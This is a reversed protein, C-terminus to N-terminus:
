FHETVASNLERQHWKLMKWTHTIQRPHHCSDTQFLVSIKELCISMQVIPITCYLSFSFTNEGAERSQMVLLYFLLIRVTKKRDMWRWKKLDKRCLLRWSWCILNKLHEHAVLYTKAEQHSVCYKNISNKSRYLYSHGHWTFFFFFFFISFHLKFCMHWM